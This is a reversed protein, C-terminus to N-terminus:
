VRESLLINEISDESLTDGGATSSRWATMAVNKNTTTGGYPLRWRPSTAPMPAQGGSAQFTTGGGTQPSKFYPSFDLRRINDADLSAIHGSTALVERLFNLQTQTARDKAGQDMDKNTSINTIDTLVQNFVSSMGQNQQLLQRYKNDIETIAVRTNADLNALQWKASQDANFQRATNIADANKTNVGTGLEAGQLSATNKAQANQYAAANEANTTNTAAQAYTTADQQAIPLARDMVAGQAAGVAISSHLLGRAQMEQDSRTKAQRMLPSGSGIIGEMQKQVTQEPTVKFPKADYTSVPAKVATATAPTYPSPPQPAIM